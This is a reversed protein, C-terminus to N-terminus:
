RTRRGLGTSRLTEDDLGALSRWWSDPKVRFSLAFVLVAAVGFCVGLIIGPNWAGRM